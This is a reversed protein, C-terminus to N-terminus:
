SELVKRVEESANSAMGKILMEMLPNSGSKQEFDVTYQQDIVGFSLSSGPKVLYAVGPRLQNGDLWTLTDALLDDPDGVLATCLVTNDKLELKAHEKAVNAATVVLNGSTASGILFPKKDVVIKTGNPASLTVPSGGATTTIRAGMTHSPSHSHTHRSGISLALLTRSTTVRGVSPVFAVM